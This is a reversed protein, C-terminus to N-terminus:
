LVRVEERKRKTGDFVITKGSIKQMYDACAEDFSTGVGFTDVLFMGDKVYCDQYAVAIKEGPLKWVEFRKGLSLLREIDKM